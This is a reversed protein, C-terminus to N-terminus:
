FAVPNNNYFNIYSAGLKNDDLLEDINFEATETINNIQKMEKVNNLFNAYICISGIGDIYETKNKVFEIINHSYQPLIFLLIFPNIIVSLIEEFVSIIKYSFLISIEEYVDYINSNKPFYHIHKIVQKLITEPEFIMNEDPILSRTIGLILGFMVIYWLVSRDHSIIVHTFQENYFTLCLLIAIFSGSIFTIFKLVITLFINTFQSIYDNTDSYAKQLRKKFEHPLENFDRLIWNSYPNWQRSGVNKPHQRYEEMYRFFFYLIVFICIFPSLILNIIGYIYMNKMLDKDNLDHRLESGDFIYNLICKNINWELQKSFFIKRKFIPLTISLDIIKDSYLAIMYNEKRMIRNIIDHPTLEDKMLCFKMKKQLEMFKTLINFWSLYQLNCDQIDLRHEFFIKMDYHKRYLNFIIILEFIIYFCFMILTIYFMVSGQNKSSLSISSKFDFEQFLITYNVCFVLFMSFFIVFLKILFDFIKEFIISYFGKGIYHLYFTILFDDLDVIPIWDRTEKKICHTLTNDKIASIEYLETQSHENILPENLM